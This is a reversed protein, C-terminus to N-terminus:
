PCAPKSYYLNCYYSCNTPCVFRLTLPQRAKCLTWPQAQPAICGPTPLILSVKCGDVVDHLQQVLVPPRPLPLHRELLAGRHHLGPHTLHKGPHEKLCDRIRM